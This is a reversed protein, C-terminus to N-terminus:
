PQVSTVDYVPYLLSPMVLPALLKLQSLHETAPSSYRTVQQLSKKITLTWVNLLLFFAGRLSHNKKELGPEM